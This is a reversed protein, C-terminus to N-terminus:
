QKPALTAAMLMKFGESIEKKKVNPGREKKSLPTPNPANGVCAKKENRWRRKASDSNKSRREQVYNWEDKLRPQWIWNGDTRCFEVILPRLESIVREVPRGFKRALWADDNPFRQEPARWLHILLLLYRGHEEDTLHGCDALYSDTFLPLAPYQAM